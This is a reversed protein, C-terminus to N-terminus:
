TFGKVRDKGLSARFCHCFLLAHYSLPYNARNSHWHGTRMCLAGDSPTGECLNPGSAKDVRSQTEWTM